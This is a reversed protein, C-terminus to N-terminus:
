SFKRMNVNESIIKLVIKAIANTVENRLGYCGRFGDWKTFEASFISEPLQFNYQFRVTFM